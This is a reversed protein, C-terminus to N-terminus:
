SDRPSPSTYLLCCMEKDIQLDAHKKEHFIQFRDKEPINWTELLAEHLGESVADLYKRDKGEPHYIHILPM